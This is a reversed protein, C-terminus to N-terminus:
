IAVNLWRFVSKRQVFAVNMTLTCTHTNTHTYGHPLFSLFLTVVKEIMDACKFKDGKFEDNVDLTLVPVECLYDFDMSCLVCVCMNYVYTDCTYHM